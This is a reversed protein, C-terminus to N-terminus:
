LRHHFAYFALQQRDDVGLKDMMGLLLDKETHPRISLKAAIEWDRYGMGLLSLTRREQSDLRKLDLTPVYKM